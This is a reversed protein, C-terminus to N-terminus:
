AQRVESKAERYIQGLKDGGKRFLAEAAVVPWLDDVDIDSWGETMSRIANRIHLGPGFFAKIIDENTGSESLVVGEKLTKDDVYVRLLEPLLAPSNPYHAREGTVAQRHTSLTESESLAETASASIPGDGVDPHKSYQISM